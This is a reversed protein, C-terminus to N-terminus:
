QEMPRNILCRHCSSSAMRSTKNYKLSQTAQALAAKSEKVIQSTILKTRIRLWAVQMHSTLSRCQSLLSAKSIHTAQVLTQSSVVRAQCTQCASSITMVAAALFAVALFVAELGLLLQSTPYTSLYNKFRRIKIFATRTSMQSEQCYMKEQSSEHSLGPVRSTMLEMLSTRAQM